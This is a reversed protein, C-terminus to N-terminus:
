RCCVGTAALAGWEAGGDGARGVGAPRFEDNRGRQVRGGARTLGLTAWAAAFHDIPELNKSPKREPTERPIMAWGGDERQTSILFSAGRQMEKRNEKVGALSLVYLAQGTAYADSALASTQSWGGDPNQRRLLADIMHRTEKNHQGDRQGDRVELLLRLAADQTSNAAAPRGGPLSAGEAPRDTRSRRVQREREREGRARPLVVGCAGRAVRLGPASQAAPLVWGGDPQQRDLLYKTMRDTEDATLAAPDTWRAMALLPISLSPIVFGESLNPKEEYAPVFRAKTWGLTEKLAEDPVAYGRSRAENYAVVTIAGHHCTACETKKRWKVVDAQLFALSKEVTARLAGRAPPGTPSADPTPAPALLAMALLAPVIM